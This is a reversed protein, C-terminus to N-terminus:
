VTEHIQAAESELIGQYPRRVDIGAGYTHSVDCM